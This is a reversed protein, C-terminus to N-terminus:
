EGKAPKDKARNLGDIVCNTYLSIATGNGGVHIKDSGLLQPQQEIERSWDAVTVFPYKEAQERMYEGTRYWLNSQDLYRGNYPTVFILRHGPAIDAIIQDIKEFANKNQNTGLSVVVYERLTGQTQLEMILDYGHWIQRSGETDAVCDPISEVLSKRAGLAISDGIVTVGGFIAADPVQVTVPPSPTVPNAPPSYGKDFTDVTLIQQTLIVPSDTIAESMQQLAGISDSDQNVYGLRMEQDITSIEPARDMIGGCLVLSVVIAISLVGATIKQPTGAFIKKKPKWVSIRHILNEAGYFLIAAFVVSISFTIIPATVGEGFIDAFVVYLPWHMLYIHYSLQAPIQLLKPERIRQPVSNHLVRASLIMIASLVSVIVFGCHYVAPTTFSWFRAFLVVGTVSLVLAWLAMARARRGSLERPAKERLGFGPLLAAIAGIMFPFGRSDTGFYAASPNVPSGALYIQQMRIYSVVMLVCAIIALATKYTKVRSDVSTKKNRSIFYGVVVCVLGWFLYFQMEVALFWTHLFLHPFLNAEYSGGSAIEFWNTVFGLSAAIQRDVGVTYDASILMVFPLTFLVTLILSPYIRLLRRKMFSFFRIKGHRSFEDMLTGTILFGSFTFFIDVGFFGAPLLDKFFHYTLVLFLGLIRVVSFWRIKNM